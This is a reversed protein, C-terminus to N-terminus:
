KLLNEGVAKQLKVRALIYDYQTQLYNTKAQNLALQADMVDINTMMGNAYQESAIRYGAQAQDITKQQAILMEAAANLSLYNAEVELRIGDELAGQNLAMERVHAAAEATKPIVSFNDWFPWAFGLTVTWAHKLNQNEPPFSSDWSDYYTWGASLAVTPFNSTLALTHAIDAMSLARSLNQIELRHELAKTELDDLPALPDPGANLNESLTLPQASDLGITLALKRQALILGNRAQLLAPKLNALQVESRLLDYNSASGERFRAKVVNLHDETQHQLDETVRVMEHAVVMGYYAETVDLVLQNQALQRSAQANQYGLSALNLGNVLKFGTFLPQTVTLQGSYYTPPIIFEESISGIDFLTVMPKDALIYGFQLSATPGMALVAQWWRNYAAKEQEAAIRYQKNAAQGRSLADQFNLVLTQATQSNAAAQPATEALALPVPLLLALLLCLTTRSM